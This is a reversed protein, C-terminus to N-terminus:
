WCYRNNAGKKVSFNVGDLVKVVGEDVSFTTELNRVELIIENQQNKQQTSM